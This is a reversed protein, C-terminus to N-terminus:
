GLKLKCQFVMSNQGLGEFYSFMTYLLITCVYTCPAYYYNSALHYSSVMHLVCDVTKSEVKEGEGYDQGATM